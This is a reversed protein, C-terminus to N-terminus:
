FKPIINQTWFEKKSEKKMFFHLLNSIENIKHVKVGRFIYNDHNLSLHKYQQFGEPKTHQEEIHSQM